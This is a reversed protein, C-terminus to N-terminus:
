PAGAVEWFTKPEIPKLAYREALLAL